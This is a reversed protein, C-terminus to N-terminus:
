RDIVILPGMVALAATGGNEVAVAEVDVIFGLLGTWLATTTRSRSARLGVRAFKVDPVDTRSAAVGILLMGHQDRPVHLDTRLAVASTHCSRCATPSTGLQIAQRVLSFAGTIVAQSAITGDGATALVVLPLM